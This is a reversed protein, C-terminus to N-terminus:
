DEGLDTGNPGAQWQCLHATVLPGSFELLKQAALGTPIGERGAQLTRSISFGGSSLVEERIAPADIHSRVRVSGAKTEFRATGQMEEEHQNRFWSAWEWAPTSVLLFGGPGMVRHAERVFPKGFYPDALSALLVDVSRARVPLQAASAVSLYCPRNYQRAYNLMERSIDTLICKAGLQGSQRLLEPALAKGAGTELVLGTVEVPWLEALLGRSLAGLGASNPHLEPDYYEAAVAAYSGDPSGQRESM